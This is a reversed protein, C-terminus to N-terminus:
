NQEEIKLFLFPLILTKNEAIAHKLPSWCPGLMGTACWPKYVDVSTCRTYQVEKYTFSTLCEEGEVTYCPQHECLVSEQQACESGSSVEVLGTSSLSLCQDTTFGAYDIQYPNIRLNNKTHYKDSILPSLKNNM